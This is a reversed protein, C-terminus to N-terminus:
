DICRALPSVLEKVAPLIKAAHGIRSSYDTRLQEFCCIVPVSEAILWRSFEHLRDTLTVSQEELDKLIRDEFALQPPALSAILAGWTAAASGRHPTGLFIM